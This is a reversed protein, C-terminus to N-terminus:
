VPIHIVVKLGYPATGRAHQLEIRGHLRAVISKVISLGLGSGDQGSGLVRYFPDFVREREAEEIGPGSDEVEISVLGPQMGARLEISGGQPTYRIANDILNRVLAVIDVEQAALTIETDAEIGIDVQRAQALPLSDEMVRRLVAQLSVQALQPAGTNQSRALTLLQELLAKSRNLGQRLPLLRAKSAPSLDTAALNEAQLSLATLPSRLEHAADALFRRQADMNDAVRRLLRNISGILPRIEDAVQQEALPRMDQDDRRDVEQSLLAIPRLMRRVLFSVLAILVPILVMFPMMTRLGSDRAIEDRVATQQGVALRQGSPTTQVFLRWHVRGAKFTQIGDRLDAPLRLADDDGKAPAAPALVQVIVKSEEDKMKGIAHRDPTAPPLDRSLVLAAVQRLQDDQLDNAEHYASYFSFVGAPVAMALIVLSLWLSLRFQLSRSLRAQFGDM